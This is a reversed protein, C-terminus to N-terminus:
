VPAEPIAFNSPALFVALGEGVKRWGKALGEDVRRCGKSLRTQWGRELGGKGYVRVRKSVRTLPQRLPLKASGGIVSSRARLPQSRKGARCGDPPRLRQGAVEVLLRTGSWRRRGLEIVGKPQFVATHYPSSLAPRSTAATM